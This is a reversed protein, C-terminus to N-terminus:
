KERKSRTQANSQALASYGASHAARGGYVAGCRARLSDVAASAQAASLQYFGGALAGAHRRQLYRRAERPKCQSQAALTEPTISLIKM